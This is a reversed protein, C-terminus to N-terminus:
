LCLVTQHATRNHMDAAVLWPESSCCSDSREDGQLQNRDLHLAQLRTIKMLADTLPGKLASGELKIAVVSGDQCVIGQWSEAGCPNSAEKWSSLVGLPDLLGAKFELLHNAADCALDAHNCGTQSRIM